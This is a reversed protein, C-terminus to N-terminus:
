ASCSPLDEFRMRGLRNIILKWGEGKYCFYFSGNQQDPFGNPLFRFYRKSPFATLHLHGYHIAPYVRIIRDENNLQADVNPDIFLLWQQRWDTICHRKDKSPCLTVAQRYNIAASRAAILISSLRKEMAHRRQSILLRQNLPLTLYSLISFVIICLILELLTLGKAFIVKM